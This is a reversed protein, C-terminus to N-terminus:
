GDTLLWSKDVVKRIKTTRGTEQVYITQFSWSPYRRVIGRPYLKIIADTLNNHKIPYQKSYM